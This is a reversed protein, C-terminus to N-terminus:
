LLAWTIFHAMLSLRTAFPGAQGQPNHIAILVQTKVNQWSCVTVDPCGFVTMITMDPCGTMITMDPYGFVTMILVPEHHQVMM